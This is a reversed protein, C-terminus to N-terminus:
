PWGAPPGAPSATPQRPRKYEGPLDSLKATAERAAEAAIRDADLALLQDLLATVRDKGIPNAFGRHTVKMNDSHAAARRHAQM